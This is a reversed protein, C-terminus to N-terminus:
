DWRVRLVRLVCALDLYSPAGQITSDWLALLAPCVRVLVPGVVDQIISDLLVYRAHLVPVLAPGV